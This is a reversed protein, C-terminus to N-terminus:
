SNWEPVPVFGVSRVQKECHREWYGGADPHGYLARVLPCVPDRMRRWSAPWQDKPLRVWTKIGQLTAQIYAMEADSAMAINGKKLSHFDLIKSAEM